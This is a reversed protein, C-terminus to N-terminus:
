FTADTCSIEAKFKITPHHKNAQEIFKEVVDRSTHRLSITDDIYRKWALPKHASEKLIQKEIEGMFINAFTVAMKAEMATGHTQLCNRKNFQFSNEQLILGLTKEQLREPIPPTDNYFTEYATCVINIGEEQPINTYLSTLDMSVLIVGKPLKTKELNIFDTTDKLYSRQQQAIPQLIKDVFCSLTETPEDCGSIIPRGVPTPKHIKTLIYFIPIRPSNTNSLGM